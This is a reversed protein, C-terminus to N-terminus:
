CGVATQTQSPSPPWPGPEPATALRAASAKTFTAASRCGRRGRPSTAVAAIVAAREAPTLAELGERVVKKTLERPANLALLAGGAAAAADLTPGYFGWDYGWREEWGTRSRLTAADIKHAAYDDLPGQFRMTVSGIDVYNKLTSLGFLDNSTGIVWQQLAALSTLFAVAGVVPVAVRWLRTGCSMALTTVIAITLVDKLLQSFLDVTVTPDVALVSSEARAWLYFGVAAFLPSWRIRVTGRGLGIVICLVSLGTTALWPSPLGLAKVPEGVQSVEAVLYLALCGLPIMEDIARDLPRENM